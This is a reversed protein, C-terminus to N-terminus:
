LKPPQTPTSTVSDDFVIKAKITSEPNDLKWYHVIEIRKSNKSVPGYRGGHKSFYNKLLNSYYGIYLNLTKIKDIKSIKISEDIKYDGTKTTYNIIPVLIVLKFSQKENPYVVQYESYKPDTSVTFLPSVVNIDVNGDVINAEYNLRNPTEGAGTNAFQCVWVRDKSKNEISYHVVISQSTSLIKKIELSLNEAKEIESRFDVLMPNEAVTKDKEPMREQKDVKQYTTSCSFVILVMFLTLFRLINM